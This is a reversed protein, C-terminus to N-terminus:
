VYYIKKQQQIAYDVTKATGGYNRKIHAVVCSCNDIMFKNRLQMCTETYNKRIAVKYDALKLMENYKKKQSINFKDAQNECPICAVIKIKNNKKYEQLVDFCLTDFGLAMGVLFYKYGQTLLYDITIRLNSDNFNKELVRHGTFACTKANEIFFDDSIKYIKM